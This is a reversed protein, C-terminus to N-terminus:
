LKPKQKHWDTIQQYQKGLDFLTDESFHPGLVQMGVPLGNRTFGCPLALGPIGALNAGVTLVDALYMKLPNGTLEGIGFPPTPSVPGLIVDVSEFAKLYDNKVLSRVSAAKLYYQDFYGASLTYTGLM